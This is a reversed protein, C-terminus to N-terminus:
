GLTVYLFAKEYCTKWTPTANRHAGVWHTVKSLGRMGLSHEVQLMVVVWDLHREITGLVGLRPAKRSMLETSLENTLVIVIPLIIV